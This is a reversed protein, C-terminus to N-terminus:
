EEYGGIFVNKGGRGYLYRSSVKEYLCANGENDIVPIADFVTEGNEKVTFSYLEFNAANENKAGYINLEIEKDSPDDNSFTITKKDITISATNQYGSVAYYYQKGSWSPKTSYGGFVNAVGWPSSNLKRCTISYVQGRRLLFGTAIGYTSLSASKADDSVGAMRIYDPPRTKKAGM